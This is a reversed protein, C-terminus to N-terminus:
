NAKQSQCISLFLSNFCLYEFLEFPSVEFLCLSGWSVLTVLLFIAVEDLFFNAVFGVEGYLELNFDAWFMRVLM